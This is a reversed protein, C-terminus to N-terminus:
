VKQVQCSNLSKNNINQILETKNEHNTNSKHITFNFIELYDFLIYLVCESQCTLIDCLVACLIIQLIQSFCGLFKLKM